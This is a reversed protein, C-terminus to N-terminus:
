ELWFVSRQPFILKFFCSPKKITFIHFVCSLRFWFSCEGVLRTGCTLRSLMRAKVWVDRSVGCSASKCSETLTRYCRDIRINHLLSISLGLYLARVTILWKKSLFRVANSLIEVECNDPSNLHTNAAKLFFFFSKSLQPRYATFLFRPLLSPTM